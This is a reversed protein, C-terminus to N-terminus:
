LHFNRPVGPEFDGSATKGRHHATSGFDSYGTGGYCKTSKYILFNLIKEDVFHCLAMEQGGMLCGGILGGLFLGAKRGGFVVFVRSKRSSKLMDDM